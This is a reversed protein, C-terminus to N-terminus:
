CVIMSISVHSVTVSSDFNSLKSLITKELKTGMKEKYKLSFRVKTLQAIKKSMKLHMDQTVEMNGQTNQPLSGYKGNQYFNFQSASTAM